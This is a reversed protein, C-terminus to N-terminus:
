KRIDQFGLDCKKGTESAETAGPDECQSAVKRTACRTAADSSSTPVTPSNDPTASKSTSTSVDCIAGCASARCREPSGRASTAGNAGNDFTLQAVEEGEKAVVLVKRWPDSAKNRDEFAIPRGAMLKLIIEVLRWTEKGRYIAGELETEDLNSLETTCAEMAGLWADPAAEAM